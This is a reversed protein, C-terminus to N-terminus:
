KEVFNGLYVVKELNLRLNTNQISSQLTNIGVHKHITENRHKPALKESPFIRLCHVICM